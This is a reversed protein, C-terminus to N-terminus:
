FNFTFKLNVKAQPKLLFIFVIFVQWPIGGLLLLLFSDIWLGIDKKDVKGLWDGSSFANESVAKNQYAFPASLLQFM